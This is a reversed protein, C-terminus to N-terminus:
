DDPNEQEDTVEVETIWYYFPDRNDFFRDMQEQTLDYVEGTTNEIVKYDTM